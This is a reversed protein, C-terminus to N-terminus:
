RRISITISHSSSLLGANLYSYSIEVVKYYLSFGASLGIFIDTGEGTKLERYKNSYGGYLYIIDVVRYRMGFAFDNNIVSYDLGAKGKKFSFSLGAKVDFPTFSRYEIFPKLVYGFRKLFLGASFNGIKYIAGSSVDFGVTYYGASINTYISPQVGFNFDKYSFVRRFSLSLSVFNSTDIVNGEEDTLEMFPVTAFNLFFFDPYNKYFLGGTHFFSYGYSYLSGYVTNSDVDGPNTMFDGDSVAVAEIGGGGIVSAERAIEIEQMIMM